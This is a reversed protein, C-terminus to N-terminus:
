KLLKIWQNTIKDINFRRSHKISNVVYKKLSSKNLDFFKNLYLAMEEFNNVVFGNKNHKIMEKLATKGFTVVPLGCSNAELANLCFTEDYGLCIMMSSINYVKKLHKKTVRGFFFINYNLYFKKLKYIKKNNIGFIYFKLKKNNPYVHNIWMNITEKLGKDRQVSWVVIKKRKFNFKDSLFDHTLFNPIILKNNFFYLRSTIKKLYKSVFISTVNNFLLSKLKKKRFAKELALTNHMWFIKKSNEFYNFIYPENSSIIYDFHYEKKKSLIKSVPINVLNKKKIIKKCDTALTIKLGKNALNKSLSLNLSEVGGLSNNKESKLNFKSPCFFLIKM